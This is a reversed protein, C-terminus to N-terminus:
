KGDQATLVVMSASAAPITLTVKGHVAAAQGAVESVQDPSDQDFRWVRMRGRYTGFDLSLVCPSHLSKNVVAVTVAQDASRRAGFVSLDAHDSACALYRDGFCGRNGDYSRFLQWALEQTGTPSPWIFALDVGERALVGFVEAQALGGTLNDAGGFNYEGLCVEMGPCHDAIWKRVRPILAVPSYPDTHRIWSEQEYSRDWLDRTSRLRLRNLEPDMGRGRYVGQGNVQGQPYWHVDFVDVLAKGGRAKKYAGCKRMFWEALGVQQHARWDPRTRYNDAGADVASYFLDTWGWSCFGAVRATPDARKIAEAYRVTREWLEDYGLPKPRVDRHTQHWLMPENDLVWYRVGARGDAGAGPGARQVVFRVAEEIFEPPAEVSTDRPDNATIPTGDRRVGNGSDPRGPQAAQQPGYKAVAYGYSTADKAVWGIMPVTQYTTAGHAQNAQIHRLYGTDALRDLPKGGNQFFWDSGANDVGRRWNYRSSRNGGWRTVPIRYEILKDRPLECVGYIGDSVRHLVREPEVRARATYPAAPPFRPLQSKAATFGIRDIQFILERNGVNSFDIQWLRSLVLPRDATFRRLPLRVRRWTGDLRDVGGDALVSLPNGAAEGDKRKVNDVLSVTLDADAVQTVQRISFVLATYRSVDDGAEPPYWGKWNLGAGRYGDGDLHLVLGRPNDGQGASPVVKLGGKPGAKAWTQGQPRSGTWVVLDPPKKETGDQPAASALCVACIVLFHRSSPLVPHCSSSSVGTADSM